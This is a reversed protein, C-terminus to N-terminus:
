HCRLISTVTLTKGNSRALRITKLSGIENLSNLPPGIEGKFVLLGSQKANLWLSVM